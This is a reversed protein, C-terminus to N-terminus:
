GGKIEISYDTIATGNDQPYAWGISLSETTANTIDLNTIAEPSVIIQWPASATIISVNGANDIARVLTYYDTGGALSLGSEFQYSTTNLTDTWGGNTVIGSEDNTSSTAYEYTAVGSPGNDAVTVWSSSDSAIDSGDNGLTISAIANPAQTDHAISANICTSENEALDRVKFYITVTTNLNMVYPSTSNYNEWTGGTSCDANDTIYMENADTATLNLTLNHDTVYVEGSNIIITDATPAFADVKVNPLNSAILTTIAANGATDAISGGNLNLNAYDIGDTDEESTQITYEFIITDTLNGTVYDANVSNGNITLPIQPTGSVIVVEDFQISFQLNQSEAYVDDTPVTINSINPLATDVM